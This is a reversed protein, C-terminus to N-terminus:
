LIPPGLGPDCMRPDFGIQEWEEAPAEIGHTRIGRYGVETYTHAAGVNEEDVYLSVATYGLQVLLTKSVWAVLHKAYGRQRFRRPTFVKTIFAHTGSNRTAAVISVITRVGDGEPEVECLWLKRERTHECAEERAQDLTMSYIVSHDAFAKFQPVVEELDAMRAPRNRRFSQPDALSSVLSDLTVTALVARYYPTEVGAIGTKWSWLNAFLRTVEVPAFVAFVRSVHIVTTLVDILRVIRPFLFDPTTLAAQHPTFIFLPLTSINSNTIAVVFDLMPRQTGHRETWLAVWLPPVGRPFSSYASSALNSEEQAKRKLAYPLITNAQIPNHVLEPVADLLHTASHFVNVIFSM